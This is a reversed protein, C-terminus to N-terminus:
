PRRCIGFFFVNACFGRSVVIPHNNPILMIGELYCKKHDDVFNGCCDDVNPLMDVLASTTAPQLLDVVMNMEDVLAIELIHIM